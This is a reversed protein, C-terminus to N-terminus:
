WKTASPLPLGASIKKCLSKQKKTPTGDIHAVFILLRQLAVIQKSTFDHYCHEILRKPNDFLLKGNGLLHLNSAFLSLAESPSLEFDQEFIALLRKKQNDSLHGDANAVALLYMTATERPTKLNFLPDADLPLQFRSRKKWALPALWGLDVGSDTLRNLILLLTILGLTSVILAYM